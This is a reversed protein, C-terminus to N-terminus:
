AGQKARNRGRSEPAERKNRLITMGLLLSLFLAGLCIGLLPRLAHEAADLGQTFLQFVAVILAPALTDVGDQPYAPTLLLAGGLLVVLGIWAPRWRGNLWLAVAVLLCSAAGLYIAMATTYSTETLM